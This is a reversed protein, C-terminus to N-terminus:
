LFKLSKIYPILPTSPISHSSWVPSFLSLSLSPILPPEGSLLAPVLPLLAVPARDGALPPDGGILTLRWLLSLSLALASLLPYAV